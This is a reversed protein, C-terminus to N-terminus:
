VGSNMRTFEAILESRMAMIERAFAPTTSPGMTAKKHEPRITGNKVMELVVADALREAKDNDM